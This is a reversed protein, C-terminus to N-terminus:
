TWFGEKKLSCIGLFIMSIRMKKTVRALPSTPWKDKLWAESIVPNSYEVFSLIGENEQIYRDTETESIIDAPSVFQDKCFSMYISDHKRQHYAKVNKVDQKLLNLAKYNLDSANILPDMWYRIHALVILKRDHAIFHYNWKKWNIEVRLAKLLMADGLLVAKAIEENSNASLFYARAYRSNKFLLNAEDSLDRANALAKQFGLFLQSLSYSM